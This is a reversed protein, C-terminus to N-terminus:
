KVLYFPNPLKFTREAFGGALDSEQDGINAIITYGEATLKKRIATKYAQSTGTDDPKYYIKTWTAYGTERLNKETAPAEAPKRATIFFVAVNNQVAVDYVLQVPVIARAQGTAVWRSWVEPVYGFDQGALHSLNTLATEDIDLVIARKEGERLPRAMRKALYKGARVAVKALDRGYEGSSIYRNVAQKATDLNPPEAAPVPSALAVALALIPLLRQTM